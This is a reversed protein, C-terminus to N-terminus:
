PMRVASVQGHPASTFLQMDLGILALVIVALLGIACTLLLGVFSVPQRCYEDILQERENEALM